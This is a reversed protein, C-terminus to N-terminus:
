TIVVVVAVFCSLLFGLDLCEEVGDLLLFVMSKPSVVTALPPPSLRFKMVHDAGEKIDRFCGIEVNDDVGHVFLQRDMSFAWFM